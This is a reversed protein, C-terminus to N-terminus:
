RGEKADLARFAANLKRERDNLMRDPFHCCYLIYFARAAEIVPQVRALEREAREINADKLNAREMQVRLSNHLQEIEARADLLDNLADKIVDEDWEVDEKLLEKIQWVQLSPESM